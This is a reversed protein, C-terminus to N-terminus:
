LVTDYYKVISYLIITLYKSLASQNWTRRLVTNEHPALSQLIQQNRICIVLEAVSPKFSNM